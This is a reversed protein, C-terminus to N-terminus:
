GVSSLLILLLYETERLPQGTSMFSGLRKVNLKTMSVSLFLFLLEHYTHATTWLKKFHNRKDQFCQIGARPLRAHDFIWHLMQAVRNTKVEKENREKSEEDITIGLCDL